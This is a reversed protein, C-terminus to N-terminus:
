GCFILSLSFLLNIFAAAGDGTELGAIIMHTFTGAFLMFALIFLFMLAGREGTQGAEVANQYLGIPYYWGLFILLAMLCNWPLEVIINSLIFVHWAFTKSQRERVEYLSRQALYNPIIQNCFTTFISLLMFVAYLQNQLGQISNPTKWFSFGIFLAQAVSDAVDQIMYHLLLARVSLLCLSLKSYLYSPTRWYQAFVRPLVVRLQTWFEAAFPHLADPDTETSPELSLTEKLRVLEVKVAKREASAKWISPWDQTCQSTVGTVHLMWEAPNEDPKCPRAGNREFYGTCTKSSEGIDGFYLTNGEKGLLM